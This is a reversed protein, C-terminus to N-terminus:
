TLQAVSKQRKQKVHQLSSHTFVSCNYVAPSRTMGQFLMKVILGLYSADSVSQKAKVEAETVGVLKNREVAVKVHDQRTCVQEMQHGGRM